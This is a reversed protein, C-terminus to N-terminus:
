DKDIIVIERPNARSSCEWHVNGDTRIIEYHGLQSMKTLLAVSGLWVDCVKCGRQKANLRQKLLKLVVATYTSIRPFQCMSTNTRPLFVQMNPLLLKVSLFIFLHKFCANKPWQILICHISSITGKSAKRWLAYPFAPLNNANRFHRVDVICTFTIHWTM